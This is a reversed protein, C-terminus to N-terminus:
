KVIGRYTLEVEGLRVVAGRVLEIGGGAHVSNVLTGNTSGLDSLLLHGNGVRLLAHRRSVSDHDLVIDCQGTQRGIVLGDPRAHLRSLPVAIECAQGGPILGIFRIVRDSALAAADDRTAPVLRPAPRFRAMQTQAAAASLRSTLAHILTQPLRQGPSGVWGRLDALEDDRQVPPVCDDIVVAVLAGRQRAQDAENALRTNAVSNSSWVVVVAAEERADGDRVVSWRYAALETALREVLTADERAHSIFIDHQGDGAM